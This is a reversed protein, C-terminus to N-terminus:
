SPRQPKRTFVEPTAEPHQACPKATRRQPDAVELRGRCVPCRAVLNEAAVHHAMLVLKTGDRQVQTRQVACALHGPLGCPEPKSDSM